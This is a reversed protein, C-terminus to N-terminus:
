EAPVGQAHTKRAGAAVRYRRDSLSLFGGLAMLTCGLWIWNTLPKIYIRMTYGSGDAQPDGVVVYVDRLIRYDIAAESTPMTEVPYVRKEPNLVTIEQGNQSVKVDGMTSIYNPGQVKRVDMLEFEYSGVTFPVGIEAVRIDEQEWATLGAIGLITIGFGAHAVAKGWDARPLRRLRGLRSALAGRGTRGLLDTVAGSVLWAGLFLGVPGLLSTGTQMAFTLGGVALALILAPVLPKLGRAISARKWPLMAGIPLFLGLVVMFPTFALNFFPPGVSLKRGFTMEAVLPWITGVFVVMCAVALLINNFLLASERSVMSFVGKAEMVSARAAFLTLAGGMFLALIALIYVGREPDNAFAHVSTIVGSRVLFTGILSFGFALIALLITWSKLVERKEVVIASHLLAAALLWPM